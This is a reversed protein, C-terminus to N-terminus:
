ISANIIFYLVIYHILILPVLDVPNMLSVRQNLILKNLINAELEM